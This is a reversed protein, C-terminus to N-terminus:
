HTKKTKFTSSTYDIEDILDRVEDSMLGLVDNDLSDDVTDVYEDVDQNSEYLADLMQSQMDALMLTVMGLLSVYDVAGYRNFGHGSGFDVNVFYGKCKERTLKEELEILTEILEKNKSM